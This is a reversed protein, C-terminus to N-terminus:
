VMRIGAYIDDEIGDAVEGGVESGGEVGAVGILRSM